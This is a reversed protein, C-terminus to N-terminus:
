RRLPLRGHHDRWRNVEVLAPLHAALLTLIASSGRGWLPGVLSPQGGAAHLDDLVLALVAPYDPHSASIKLRKARGRHRVDRHTPDIDEHRSEAHLSEAHPPVATRLGTALQLRLRRWAEARNRSQDRSESAEAVTGSPLHTWQVATSVKNRHQGGPGSRRLQKMRCVSLLTSQDLTAPHPAGSLQVSALSAVNPWQAPDPPSDRQM